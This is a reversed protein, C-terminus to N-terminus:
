GRHPALRESLDEAQDVLAGGCDRPLRRALDISSEFAQRAVAAARSRAEALSSEREFALVLSLGIGAERDAEVDKLDDFIQYGLGFDCAAEHAITVEEVFGATILPMELALAFFPGSKRRASALVADLNGRGALDATQGEATEAVAVHLKEILDPLFEPHRIKALAAFAAALLRNTLGIAAPEGFRVWVAPRGRRTASQDQLDDQLLSANHVLEVSAALTVADADELGLSRGASLAILARKQGGASEFHYQLARELLGDSDGCPSLHCAERLFDQVEVLSLETSTSSPNDRTLAIAV